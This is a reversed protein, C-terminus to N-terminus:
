KGTRLDTGTKVNSKGKKGKVLNPAKVVQTGGNSIKGIYDSKCGNKAM